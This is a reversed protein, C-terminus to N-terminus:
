SLFSLFGSFVQFHPTERVTERGREALPFGAIAAAGYRHISGHSNVYGNV